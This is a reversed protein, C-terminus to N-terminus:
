PLNTENELLLIIEDGQAVKLTPGPVMGNYALMRVKRGSIWKAVFSVTLRVTDGGHVALEATPLAIPLGEVGADFPTIASDVPKPRGEASTASDSCGALVSLALALGLGGLFPRGALAKRIM